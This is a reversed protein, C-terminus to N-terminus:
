RLGYYSFIIFISIITMFIGIGLLAEAMEKDEDKVAFYGVIGGIIGLLIPVFYWAKSPKSIARRESTDMEKSIIRREFTDVQTAQQQFIGDVMDLTGRIKGQMIAVKLVTLTLNQSLGIERSLDAVTIRGYPRVENLIQENLQDLLSSIVAEPISTKSSIKSPDITKSNEIEEFVLARIVPESIFGKGDSTLSGKIRNDAHLKQIILRVQEENLQLRQALEEFRFPQSALLQILDGIEESDYQIFEGGKPDFIGHIKGENLMKHFSKEIAEIPVNLTMAVEKLRIRRM